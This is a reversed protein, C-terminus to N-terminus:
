VVTEAEVVKAKKAKAELALYGRHKEDGYYM